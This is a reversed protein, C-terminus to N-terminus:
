YAEDIFLVGGRARLFAETTKPGTHGVYEGVLASRDVEVLHGRSLLGLGHLLRGYLRAVTTKGTGPNGAFVLHRSLPPAPL